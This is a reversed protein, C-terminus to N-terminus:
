LESPESSATEAARRIESVDRQMESIDKAQQKTTNHLSDISQKLRLENNARASLGTLFRSEQGGPLSQSSRGAGAGAFAPLQFGLGGFSPGGPSSEIQRLRRNFAQRRQILQDDTFRQLDQIFGENPTEQGFLKNVNRNLNILNELLGSLVLDGVNESFFVLDQWSGTFETIFSHLQRLIQNFGSTFSGVMFQIPGQMDTLLGALSQMAPALGEGIAERTDGVANQFQQLVGGTTNADSKMQDFGKNVVENIAAWRESQTTARRLQPIFRDLATATDGRAIRNLAIAMAEANQNLARGLATAALTTQELQKGTQGTLTSVFAALQLTAEDGVTTISQLGSAFKELGSLSSAGADGAAILADRLNAVAKEQISFAEISQKVFAGIAVGGLAGVILGKLSFLQNKLRGLVGGVKGFAGSAKDRARLIIDLKQTKAM